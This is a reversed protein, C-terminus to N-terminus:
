GDGVTFSNRGRPDHRNRPPRFSGELCPVTGGGGFLHTSVPTFRQQVAPGVPGQSGGGCSNPQGGDCGAFAGVPSLSSEFGNGQAADSNDLLSRALATLTVIELRQRTDRDRCGIRRQSRSKGTFRLRSQTQVSCVCTPRTGIKGRAANFGTVKDSRSQLISLSEWVPELDDLPVYAVPDANRIPLIM